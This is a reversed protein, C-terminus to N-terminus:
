DNDMGACSPTLPMRDVHRRWAARDADMAEQIGPSPRYCMAGRWRDGNVLKARLWVERTRLLDHEVCWEEIEIIAEDNSPADSWIMVGREDGLEALDVDPAIISM